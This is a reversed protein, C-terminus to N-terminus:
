RPLDGRSAEREAVLEDLYVTEFDREEGVVVGDKEFRKEWDGDDGKPRISVMLGEENVVVKGGVSDSHILCRSLLTMRQDWVDHVTKESEDSHLMEVRVKCGSETRDWPLNVANDKPENTNTFRSLGYHDSSFYDLAKSCANPDIVPDSKRPPLCQVENLPISQALTSSLCYALLLARYISIPSFM